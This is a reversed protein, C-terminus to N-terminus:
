KSPHESNEVLLLGMLSQGLCTQIEFGLLRAWSVWHLLGSFPLPRGLFVRDSGAGEFFAAGSTSDMTLRLELTLLALSPKWVGVTLSSFSGEFFLFFILTTSISSEVPSAPGIGM